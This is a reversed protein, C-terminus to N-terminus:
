VFDEPIKHWKILINVWKVFAHSFKYGNRIREQSLVGSLLNTKRQCYKRMECMLSSDVKQFMGVTSPVSNLDIDCKKSKRM